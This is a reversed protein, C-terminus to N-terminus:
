GDDIIRNEVRSETQFRSVPLPLGSDLYPESCSRRDKIKRRRDFPSYFISRQRVLKHVWSYSGGRCGLEGEEEGGRGRREEM